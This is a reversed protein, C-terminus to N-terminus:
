GLYGGREEMSRTRVVGRPGDTGGLRFTASDAPVPSTVLTAGIFVILFPIRRRVHEGGMTGRM